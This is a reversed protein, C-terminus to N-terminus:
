RCINSRHGIQEIRLIRLVDELSYVVRCAGIRIRWANKSGVLKLCGRPRPEVGLKEIARYISSRLPEPLRWLEREASRVFEVQYTM